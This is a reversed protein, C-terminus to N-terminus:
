NHPNGHGNSHGNGHDSTAPPGTHKVKTKGSARGNGGGNGQGNGGGNGASSRSHGGTNGGGKATDASSAGERSSPGSVSGRSNGPSTDAPPTATEQSGTQPNSGGQVPDDQKGQGPGKDTQGTGGNHSAKQQPSTGVAPKAPKPAVTAAPAPAPTQTASSTGQTVAGLDVQGVIANLDGSQPWMQSSVLGLLSIFVISAAALLAGTAGVGNVYLQEIKQSPAIARM